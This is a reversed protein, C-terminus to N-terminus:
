RGGSIWRGHSPLWRSILTWQHLVSASHYLHFSQLGLKSWSYSTHKFFLFWGLNQHNCPVLTPCRFRGIHGCEVACLLESSRRRWLWTGGSQRQWTEVKHLLPCRQFVSLQFQCAPQHGLWHPLRRSLSLLRRVRKRFCRLEVHVACVWWSWDAAKNM